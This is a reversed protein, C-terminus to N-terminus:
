KGKKFYKLDRVEKESLFRWKGREVNKKTLGAFIVRDLNKVDYGYHEFIRRVIRNRGSHIEIGIQTKDKIDTYALSDVNAVGDELPV